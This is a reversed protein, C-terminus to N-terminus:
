TSPYYKKLRPPPNSSMGTFVICEQPAIAVALYQNLGEPSVFTCKSRDQPRTYLLMVVRSKSERNFEVGAMPIPILRPRASKVTRNKWMDFPPVLPLLWPEFLM